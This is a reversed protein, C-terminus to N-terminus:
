PSVPRRYTRSDSSPALRRPRIPENEWDEGWIEIPHYGLTCAAADAQEITLMGNFDSRIRQLMRRAARTDISPDLLQGLMADSYGLTFRELADLRFPRHYVHIPM